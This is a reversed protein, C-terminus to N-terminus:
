ADSLPARRAGEMQNYGRCNPGVTQRAIHLNAFELESSDFHETKATKQSRLFFFCGLVLCAGCNCHLFKKFLRNRSRQHVMDVYFYLYTLFFM